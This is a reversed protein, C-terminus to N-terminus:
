EPEPDDSRDRKAGKSFNMRANISMAIIDHPEAEASFWGMIELGLSRKGEMHLAHQEERTARTIGSASYIEFLHRKFQPQEMLWDRDERRIKEEPSM